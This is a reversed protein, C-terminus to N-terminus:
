AADILAGPITFLKFLAPTPLLQLLKSLDTDTRIVLAPLPCVVCYRFFISVPSFSPPGATPSREKQDPLKRYTTTTLSEGPTALIKHTPNAALHQLTLHITEVSEPSGLAAAIQEPTGSNGARLHTLIKLQLTIVATAAKKGAEVGPQHYANINILSAYLGVAREFLAILSGISRPSLENLTITM